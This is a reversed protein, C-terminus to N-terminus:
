FLYLFDSFYSFTERFLIQLVELQLYWHLIGPPYLLLWIPIGLLTHWFKIFHLSIFFGLSSPDCYFNFNLIKTKSFDVCLEGSLVSCSPKRELQDFSSWHYIHTRNEVQRSLMRKKSWKKLYRSIQHTLKIKSLLSLWHKRGKKSKVMHLYGVHAEHFSGIM